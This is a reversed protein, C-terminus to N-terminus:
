RDVGLVSSVIAIFVERTIKGGDMLTKFRDAQDAVEDYQDLDRLKKAVFEKMEQTDELDRVRRRWLGVGYKERLHM